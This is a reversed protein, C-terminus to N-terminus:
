WYLHWFFCFMSQLCVFCLVCYLCVLLNGTCIVSFVFCLIFVFLVTKMRHKTKETMQVPLRKPKQTTNKTKNTKMRHKIKEPMQVPLRKPKQITNKTKNTKLNGTCIGSFIFCLIFVFLVFFV